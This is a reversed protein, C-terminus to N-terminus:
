KGLRNLRQGREDGGIRLICPQRLRIEQPPIRPQAQRKPILCNGIELLVEFAQTNPHAAHWQEVLVLQAVSDVLFIVRLGPNLRKMDDVGKLDVARFVQNAIICRRAGALVGARTQGVTAFTLGWAGADLQQRFLQPSMTTKGHPALGVGQGAAFEQMWRLNGALADRRIVAVPLPLDGRLVNWGQRGIESRRMPAAHLPMGKQSADLIPDLFDQM